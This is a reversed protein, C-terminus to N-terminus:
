FLEERQIARYSSSILYLSSPFPLMPLIKPWAIVEGYYKSETVWGCWAPLIDHVQTCIVENMGFFQCNESVTASQVNEGEEFPPMRFSNREAHRQTCWKALQQPHCTASPLSSPSLNLLSSPTLSLMSSPSEIPAGSAPISTPLSSPM